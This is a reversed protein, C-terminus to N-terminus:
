LDGMVRRADPAHRLHPSRPASGARAPFSPRPHPKRATRSPTPPDSGISAGARDRQRKATGHKPPRRPCTTPSPKAPGHRRACPLEPSSPAKARHAFPTPPDSGISAGARDRQRKPQNRPEAPTRPHTALLSKPLQPTATALLPSMRDADFGPGRWGPNWPTTVQISPGWHGTLRDRWLDPQFRQM